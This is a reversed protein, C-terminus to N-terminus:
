AFDARRPSEGHPRMFGRGGAGARVCRNCAARQRPIQTKSHIRGRANGRERKMKVRRCRELLVVIPRSRFVFVVLKDQEVARFRSGDEIYLYLPLIM